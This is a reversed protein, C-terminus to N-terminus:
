SKKRLYLTPTSTALYDNKYYAFLPSSKRLFQAIKKQNLRKRILKAPNGAVMAYSPIDKTVISGAGVIAGQGITVGPLVVVNAGIWVDDAITIPAAQPKQRVMPINAKAFGHNSSLILTNAGIMVFNGIKVGGEGGISCNQSMNVDHGIQIGEPSSCHFPSFIFINNGTRAMLLTYLKSRLKGWCFFYYFALKKILYYKYTKLRTM